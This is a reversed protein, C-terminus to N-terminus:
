CDYILHFCFLSCFINDKFLDTTCSAILRNLFCSLALSREKWKILFTILFYKFKLRQFGLFGAVWHCFCRVVCGFNDAIATCVLWGIEPLAKGILLGQDNSLKELDLIVFNKRWIKLLLYFPRTIEVVWFRVRNLIHALIDITLM